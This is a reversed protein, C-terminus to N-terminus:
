FIESLYKIHMELAIIQYVNPRYIECIIMKNRIFIVKVKKKLVTYRLCSINQFNIVFNLSQVFFFNCM